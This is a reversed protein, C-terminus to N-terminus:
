SFILISLGLGLIIAIIALVISLKPLRPPTFLTNLEDSPSSDDEFLGIERPTQGTFRQYLSIIEDPEISLERACNRLFGRVFVEGPFQDYRDEELCQIFKPSIRTVAALEKISLGKNQRSKRLLGGPTEVGDM